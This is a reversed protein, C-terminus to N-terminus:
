LPSYVIGFAHLTMLGIGIFFIGVTTLMLATAISTGVGFIINTLLTQNLM